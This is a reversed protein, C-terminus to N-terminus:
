CSSGDILTESTAECSGDSDELRNLLKAAAADSDGVTASVEVAATAWSAASISVGLKPLYSAVGVSNCNVVNYCM